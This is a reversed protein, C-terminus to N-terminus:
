PESKPKGLVLRGPLSLTRPGLCLRGLPRVAGIRYRDRTFGGFVGESEPDVWGVPLGEVIVMVGTNTHNVFRLSADREQRAGSRSRRRPLFTAIEDPDMLSRKRPAPRASVRKRGNWTPEPEPARMPVVATLEARWPGLRFGPPLVSGVCRRMVNDRPQASWEALLACVLEGPGTTVRNHGYDRRVSLFSRSRGDVRGEFWSALRGPGLRRQGTGDFVTAGPLDRYVLAASGEPVPWAPGNFRGEIWRDSVDTMLEGALPPLVARRGRFPQPVIFAVRYVLRRVSVLNEQAQDNTARDRGPDSPHEGVVTKAPDSRSAAGPANGRQQQSLPDVPARRDIGDSRPGETCGALHFATALVSLILCRAPRRDPERIARGTRM